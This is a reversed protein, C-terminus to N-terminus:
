MQKKVLNEIILIEEKTLNYQEYLMEDIERIFINDLQNDDFIKIMRDQIEKDPIFIPINLIQDQDVQLMEGKRKGNNYLWYYVIKSNLFLTLYKLNMNSNTPQIILYTRNVYSPVDCYTFQPFLTMRTSLIKNNEFLREERARNLGYPKNDSTMINKYKDLHTKINTMKNILNCAEKNMYIIWNKNQEIIRYRKIQESNYFPRIYHEELENCVFNRKENNNLIYIGNGITLTNDKKLHKDTVFEQLTDIGNGIDEKSFKFNGKNKIKELLPNSEHFIINGDVDYLEEQSLEFYDMYDAKNSFIEEFQNTNAFGKSKAISCKVMFNKIYNSKNLFTIINHQGLASEFIKLENFNIMKRINTRLKFDKRLNKAGSNTLFYNTTIFSLEGNDKLIDIGKHFFLYFLDSRGMYYKKGFATKSIERFMEKQNREGVYPPNGIVIDFGGNNKFVDFFELEWIFWPKQRKKSIIRFRQLKKEDSKLSEEVLGIQINDIKEKLEKKIKNDSTIFYEKQLDLMTEIYKDITNTDEFLSQQLHIDRVTKIQSENRRYNKLNNSIMKESFLQVEDFEDILSNGQMIKCDLNPLPRPESESPYDVVLSLWLRLKAIDVASTEIDVAYICNEIIQLKMKYIDTKLHGISYLNDLSILGLEKQILIYTQINTRLKVIENVMGLPFAGSGVAPDAIKVNTIANDIKLLNDYVSKGIAFNENNELSLDWDHQSIIDGYKIFQSIEDYDINVKNSLYNALSEQCMYHVIERPTYFAGKDKRDGIELLNEFIKGLMEPDVAIEKELPEEEDITFNYLNLFDLIGDKNDNHFLSNKIEFHASSWRYNNLPEFLGGNLFPIKCNFLPFYQNERKENLGKYFFYELYDDFFNKHEKQSQNFIYMIFDKKGTGWPMDYKTGKFINTLNIIDEQVELLRLKTKEVVYKNDELEYYNRILNQSVSDNQSLLENYEEITLENPILQVGLWGKKQLFYLFVIQGMLKKAFEESDFDCNKAETQFDENKDLFEKLQLYKEKYEEFFRKTVKEVDFQKEIDSLTIKRDDIDLLHLLFEKATHISEGEGVLYSYRKASTLTEKVGKETFSLEKKVFSLRWTKEKDSFFSVLAGDLNYKQLLTAVFNRQMNRSRTSSTNNFKIIFVGINNMGDNYNAVFKYFKISEKYQNQTIGIETVNRNLSSIDLNLLDIVFRIFKEENFSHELLELYEKNRTSM